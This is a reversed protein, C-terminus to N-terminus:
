QPNTIDNKGPGCFGEFYDISQYKLEVAASMQMPIAVPGTLFLLPM